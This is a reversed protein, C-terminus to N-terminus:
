VCESRSTVSDLWCTGGRPDWRFSMGNLCLEDANTSTCVIQGGPCMCFSFVGRMGAPVPRGSGGYEEVSSGTPGSVFLCDLLFVHRGSPLLGKSPLVHVCCCKVHFWM